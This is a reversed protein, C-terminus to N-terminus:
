QRLKIVKLSTKKQQIAISKRDGTEPKALLVTKPVEQEDTEKVETSITEKVPVQMARIKEREVPKEPPPVTRAESIDIVQEAKDQQSSVKKYVEKDRFPVDMGGPNEPKIKYPEPNAKILPIMAASSPRRSEEMAFWGLVGLGTLAALMIITTAIQKFTSPEQINDKGQATM